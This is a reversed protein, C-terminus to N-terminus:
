TKGNLRKTRLLLFKFNPPDVTFKSNQRDFKRLKRGIVARSLGRGGGVVGRPCSCGEVKQPVEHLRGSVNRSNKPAFPCSWFVKPCHKSVCSEFIWRFRESGVVLKQFFLPNPGSNSPWDEAAKLALIPRIAYRPSVDAQYLIRRGAFRSFFRIHYHLSTCHM